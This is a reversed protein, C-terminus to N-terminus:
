HLVLNGIWVRKDDTNSLAVKEQEIMQMKHKNSQLKTETLVKVINNFVSNEYDIFNINQKKNVRTIGKARKEEKGDLLKFAYEKSRVGAFHTIVKSPYENKMYGPVKKNISSYLLSKKDYNSFDFCEGIKRLETDVDECYVQFIFSDTDTMLLRTKQCREKLVGYWFTYM